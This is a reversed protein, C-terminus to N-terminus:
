HVVIEDVFFWAPQGASAHWEFLQPVGTIEFRVFRFQRTTTFKHTLVLEAAEQNGSVISSGLLEYHIGDLSVSCQISSPHLIWSKGNWLTGIEILKDTVIQELDLTLTTNKGFWGVWNVNYDSAGKVGNTLFSLDGSSYKPDAAVTATVPKQFALNGELQTDIMRKVSAIYDAPTLRNENITPVNNRLATKEFAGLMEFLAENRIAKGNKLHYWGRDSFMFKTAIEMQAYQLPMRALQVRNLFTSDESVAAEAKDFLDNYSRLMAASFLDGDHATPHEYIDLKVNKQEVTTQLLKIYDTIYPAAKGYYTNLFFTMETNFDVEPNWMLRSLLYVKLTSFEYGITSNSQEFLAHIPYSAFLQVNPQLVHLNPFPSVSHNFNITYDWVYIRQAIKGWRNMDDVFNKAGPDALIAKDRTLEISCFMIEVNERAKTLSPPKRSYQYALTSIIKDPFREALKNVLHLIPGSPSGEQEIIKSCKECHCYSFNDNQSVSWTNKDPNVAMLNELKSAILEFVEEHSPCLQDISRTTNVLAFYEPKQEFYEQWPILTNFTHVFYGKPYYEENSHLRQWDLFDPDYPFYINIVRREVKPQDVITKEAFSIESRKPIIRCDPSIYICGLEKELLHIVGYTCGKGPGGSISMRNREIRITYSDTPLNADTQIRIVSQKKASTEKVPLTQESIEFIYRKLMDAAHCADTQSTAAQIITEKQPIFSINFQSFVPTFVLLTPLLSVCLSLHKLSQFIPKFASSKCIM